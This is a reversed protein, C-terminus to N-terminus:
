FLPHLPRLVLEAAKRALAREEWEQLTLPRCNTLDAEFVREMHAAQGPDDIELNIEYNGFLSLRDINATGVTTWRGDVVATKAHVMAGQFLHIEVGGRLLETYYGRAIWDALVHNSFEPTVLKVDVGRRAAHILAGLIEADPIFYAQTIWVRTTARDIAELYVGRVPFLMRGPANRAAVIRSDWARAGQDPLAPLRRGHYENWFDVFANELEWVAVGEVKVHTDRWTTAYLEGVNYGGVYGVRGDVVLIKRHDRGSRRLNLVLMGPRFAPFPLVHVSDPFHKFERPVVLNAFADYVIYVEVGRAAAALLAEKFAAGVADSKWIYSEFYIRETASRIAALMDDYLQRGSTFTTVRSGAVETSVPDVRPFEGGPPSRRKRVADVAVVTAAVAAQTVLAAGAGLLATRRVVRRAVRRRSHM